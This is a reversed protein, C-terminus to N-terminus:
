IISIRTCMRANTNLAFNHANECFKNNKKGLAGNRMFKSACINRHFRYCNQEFHNTGIM